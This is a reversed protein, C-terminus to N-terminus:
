VGRLCSQEWAFVKYYMHVTFFVAVDGICSGVTVITDNVSTGGMKKRVSIDGVFPVFLLIIAIM